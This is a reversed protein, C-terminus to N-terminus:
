KSWHDSSEKQLLLLNNSTLIFSVIKEYLTPPAHFYVTISFTVCKNLDLPSLTTIMKGIPITDISISPPVASWWVNFIFLLAKFSNNM